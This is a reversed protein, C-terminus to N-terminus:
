AAGEVLALLGPLRARVGDADDGATEERVRVLASFDLDALADAPTGTAVLEAARDYLALVVDILAATKAPSCNADSASLASQQLVADRLLRGALLVIREPGPLAAVGVLDALETLRDAAALLGVVRTRRSTWGPEDTSAYWAGITATDRCYSGRWSV